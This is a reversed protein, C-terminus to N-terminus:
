NQKDVKENHLYVHDNSLMKIILQIIDLVKRFYSLGFLYVMIKLDICEKKLEIYIEKIMEVFMFVVM